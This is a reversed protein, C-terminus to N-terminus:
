ERGRTHPNYRHLEPLFKDEFAYFINDFPEEAFIHHTITGGHTDVWYKFM